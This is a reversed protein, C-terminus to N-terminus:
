EITFLMSPVSYKATTHSSRFRLNKMKADTPTAVVSIASGDPLKNEIRQNCAVLKHLSFRVFGLLTQQEPGGYVAIIIHKM